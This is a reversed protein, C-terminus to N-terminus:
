RVYGILKWNKYKSNKVKFSIFIWETRQIKGKMVRAQTSKEEIEFVKVTEQNDATKLKGEEM